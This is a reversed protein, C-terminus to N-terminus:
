VRNESAVILVVVVVMGVLDHLDELVSWFFLFVVVPM